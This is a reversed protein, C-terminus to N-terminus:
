MFIQKRCSCGNDGFADMIEDLFFYMSGDTQDVTWSEVDKVEDMQEKDLVEQSIYEPEMMYRVPTIDKVAPMHLSVEFGM